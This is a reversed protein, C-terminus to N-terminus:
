TRNHHNQLLLQPRLDLRQLFRRLSEVRALEYGPFRHYAYQNQM